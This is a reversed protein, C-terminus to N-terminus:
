KEESPREGRWEQKGDPFRYVLRESSLELLKVELPKGFYEYEPRGPDRKRIDSTKCTLVLTPPLADWRLSWTGTLHNQGPTFSRVDYTGDARFTYDGGCAPGQWTGLLMRELAALQEGKATGAPQSAPPAKQAPATTPGRAESEGAATPAAAARLLLAILVGFAFTAKM